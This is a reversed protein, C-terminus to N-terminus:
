NYLFINLDLDLIIQEDQNELNIRKRVPIEHIVVETEEIKESKKKVQIYLSIVDTIYIWITYKKSCSQVQYELDM